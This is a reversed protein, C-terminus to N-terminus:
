CRNLRRYRRAQSRRLSKITLSDPEDKPGTL